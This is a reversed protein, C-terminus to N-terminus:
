KTLTIEDLVTQDAARRAVLHLEGGDVEVTVYSDVSASFATWWDTGAPYLSTFFGGNVIYTVGAGPAAAAGGSIPVTREYDHDHGSFALDVGYLDFLPAWHELVRATCGHASASYAPHHFLVVKWQVDPDAAAAALDAALWPALAEVNEVTLSDLGVVHVNAYDFSWALEALEPALAPEAPLAFQALDAEGTAEHNGRVPMVVASETVPAFVDFWADWQAQANSNNMDGSLLWFAAPLAAIDALHLALDELGGHSDGAVVFSFPAAAAGAAPATRIARASSLSAGVLEGADADYASWTGVRYLYETDPALGTAQVVWEIRTQDGSEYEVGAGAATFAPDFPM